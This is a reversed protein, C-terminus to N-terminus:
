ETTTLSYKGGSFTLTASKAGFPQQSPSDVLVYGTAVVSFPHKSIRVEQACLTVDEFEVLVFNLSDYPRQTQETPKFTITNEDETRDSALGYSIKMSSTSNPVEFAASLDNNKRPPTDSAAVRLIVIKHIHTRPATISTEAHHAFGKMEVSFEFNCPNDPITFEGKADSQLSIPMVNAARVTVRAKPVLAGYTDVVIGSFQCRAVQAAAIGVHLTLAFMIVLLLTRFM